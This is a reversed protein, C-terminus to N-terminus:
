FVLFDEKNENNCHIRVIDAVIEAITSNNHLLIVMEYNGQKLSYNIYDLTNLLLKTSKKSTKHTLAEGCIMKAQKCIIPNGKIILEKIDLNEM